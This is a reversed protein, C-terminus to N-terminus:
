RRPDECVPAKTMLRASHKNQGGFRHQAQPKHLQGMMFQAISTAITQALAQLAADDNSTASPPGLQTEQQVTPLSRGTTAPASSSEHDTAEDVLGSSSNGDKARGTDREHRMTAIHGNDVVIEGTELDIEDGVGSFDESYKAFIRELAREFRM